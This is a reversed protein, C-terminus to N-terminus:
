NLWAPADITKQWKNEGNCVTGKGISIRNEVKDGKKVITRRDMLINTLNRCEKTPKMPEAILFRKNIPDVLFFISGGEAFKALPGISEYLSGSFLRMRYSRVSAPKQGLLDLINKEFTTLEAMTRLRFHDKFEQGPERFWSALNDQFTPMAFIYDRDKVITHCSHCALANANDEGPTDVSGNVYLWYSWGATAKFKKSNKVMIQLRTFSKPEMSNPFNADEVTRFAVKGFVSGDPFEDIGEQMAKFAIDNAYIFRQEGNDKRYRVTVQKWNKWFNDFPAPDIGNMARLTKLSPIELLNESEKPAALAASSFIFCLWTCVLRKM